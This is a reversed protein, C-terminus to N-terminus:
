SHSALCGLLPNNAAKTVSHRDNNQGQLVEDSNNDIHDDVMFMQLPQFRNKVLVSAGCPIAGTVTVGANERSGAQSTNTQLKRNPCLDPRSRSVTKTIALSTDIPTFIKDDRKSVKATVPSTEQIVDGSFMGETNIKQDKNAM